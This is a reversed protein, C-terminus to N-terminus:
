EQLIGLYRQLCVPLRENLYEEGFSKLCALRAFHKLTIDHSPLKVIKLHKKQREPTSTWVAIESLDWNLDFHHIQENESGSYLVKREGTVTNYSWVGYSVATDKVITCALEQGFYYVKRFPNELRRRIRLYNFNSLEVSKLINIGLQRANFIKLVRRKSHSYSCFALFFSKRIHFLDKIQFDDGLDVFERELIVDGSFDVATLEHSMTSIAQGSQLRKRRQIRNKTIYVISSSTDLFISPQTYLVPCRIPIRQFRYMEKDDFRVLDILRDGVGPQSLIVLINGILCCYRRPNIDSHNGSPYNLKIKELSDKECYIIHGDPQSSDIFGSYIVSKDPLSVQLRDTIFGVVFWRGSSADFLMHNDTEWGRKAVLKIHNQNLTQGDEGVSCVLIVAVVKHFPLESDVYGTDSPSYCFTYLRKQTLFGGNSINIPLDARKDDDEQSSEISTTLAPLFNVRYLNEEQNEGQM